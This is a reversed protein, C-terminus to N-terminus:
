VAENQCGNYHLNRSRLYIKFEQLFNPNYASLTTDPWNIICTNQDIFLLNSRSCKACTLRIINLEKSIYIKNADFDTEHLWDILISDFTM